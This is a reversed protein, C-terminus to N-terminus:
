STGGLLVETVLKYATGDLNLFEDLDSDSVKGILSFLKLVNGLFDALFNLM